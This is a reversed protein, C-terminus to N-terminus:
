PLPITPLELNNVKAGEAAEQGFERVKIRAENAKDLGSQTRESAAQAAAPPLAITKTVAEPLEVGPEVMRMTVDLDDVDAAQAQAVSFCALFIFALIWRHTNM